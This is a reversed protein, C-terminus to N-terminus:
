PNQMRGFSASHVDSPRRRSTRVSRATTFAHVSARRLEVLQKLGADGSAWSMRVWGWAGARIREPPNLTLTGFEWIFDPGGYEPHIAFGAALVRRRLEEPTVEVGPPARLEVYHGM